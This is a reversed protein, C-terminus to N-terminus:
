KSIVCQTEYRTLQSSEICTYYVQIQNCHLITFLVNDYFNSMYPM